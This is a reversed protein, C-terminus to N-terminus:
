HTLFHLNIVSYLRLVVALLAGIVTAPLRRYGKILSECYTRNYSNSNINCFYTDFKIVYLFQLLFTAVGTKITRAGIINKYWKNM